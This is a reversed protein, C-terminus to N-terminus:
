LRDPITQENTKPHIFRVEKFAYRRPRGDELRLRLHGDPEVGELTARFPGTDDCYEALEGLRYLQATYAAHLPAYMGQEVMTYITDFEELLARLVATRDAEHSLILALSTPNPADPLFTRQNVNVGIGIVSSAIHRGQLENEILIGVVKRDGHYVDNPWKVRFGPAFRSLARCAALCAVESLVFMDSALLDAPRLGLSLLLNKGPLSQWGGTAGRGATQSEATVLVLRAGAPHPTRKLHDNTSATEELETVHLGPWPPLPYHRNM